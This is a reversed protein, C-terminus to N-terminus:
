ASRRMYPAPVGERLRTYPSAQTGMCARATDSRSAKLRGRTNQLSGFGARRAKRPGRLRVRLVRHLPLEEPALRVALGPRQQRLGGRVPGVRRRQRALRADRVLGQLRRLRGRWGGSFLM